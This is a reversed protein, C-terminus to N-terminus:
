RRLHGVIRLGTPSDALPFQKGTAELVRRIAAIDQSHQRPPVNGRPLLAVRPLELWEIGVFPFPGFELSFAFAPSRPRPLGMFKEDDVDVFKVAVQRIDLEAGHLAELFVRWKANSMLSARYNRRAARRDHNLEDDLTMPECDRRHM